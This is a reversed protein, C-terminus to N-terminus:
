PTVGHALCRDIVLETALSDIGIDRGGPGAGLPNTVGSLGAARVCRRTGARHRAPWSPCASLEGRVLPMGHHDLRHRSSRVCRQRRSSMHPRLLCM